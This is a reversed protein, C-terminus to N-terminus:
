QPLIKLAVIHPQVTTGNNCYSRDVIAIFRRTGELIFEANQNTPDTSISGEYYKTGTGVLIGQNANYWDTPTYTGGATVYAPNLRLAQVLGYVAFTDSRVTIFNEVDAWVADRQQLTTPSTVSGLWSPFPITKSEITPIFAVLLDAVSEYGVGGFGSYGTGGGLTYGIPVKGTLPTIAIGAAQRERFGIADTILQDVDVAAPPTASSKWLAGDESFASYLVDIGATNINIKGAQRVLDTAGEPLASAAITNSQSRDTLTTTSLITPPIEGTDAPAIEPDLFGADAATFAARPDYAFDFYLASEYIEPSLTGALAGTPM